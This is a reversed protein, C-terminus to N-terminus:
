LIIVIETTIFIKATNIILKEGINRETQNQQTENCRNTDAIQSLSYVDHVLFLLEPLEDAIYLPLLSSLKLNVQVKNKIDLRSNVRLEHCVSIILPVFWYYM